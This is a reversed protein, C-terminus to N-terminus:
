HPGVYISGGKLRCNFHEIDSYVWAPRRGTTFSTPVPGDPKPRLSLRTVCLPVSFSSAYRTQVGQKKCPIKMRWEDQQPVDLMKGCRRWRMGMVVKDLGVMGQLKAVDSLLEPTELILVEFPFNASSHRQFDAVREAEMWDM